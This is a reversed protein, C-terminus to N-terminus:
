SCVCEAINEISAVIEEPRKFSNAVSVGAKRPAGATVAPVNTPQAANVVAGALLGATTTPVPPQLPTASIPALVPGPSSTGSM